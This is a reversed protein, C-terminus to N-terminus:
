FIGLKRYRVIRCIAQIRISINYQSSSLHHILWLLHPKQNVEEQFLPGAEEGPGQKKKKCNVNKLDNQLIKNNSPLKEKTIIKM